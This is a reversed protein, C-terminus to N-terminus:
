RLLFNVLREFLAGYPPRIIDALNLRSQEFIGKAHTFTRFGEPGHYAGMGSAGVGGFPIDDQAYNLKTLADRRHELSPPGERLFAARQRELCASLDIPMTVVNPLLNAVM